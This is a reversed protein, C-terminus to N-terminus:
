LASCISFRPACCHSFIWQEAQSHDSLLVGKARPPDTPVLVHCCQRICRHTGSWSLWKLSTSVQTSCDSQPLLNGFIICRMEVGGLYGRWSCLWRASCLASFVPWEQRGSDILLLSSVSQQACIGEEGWALSHKAPLSLM